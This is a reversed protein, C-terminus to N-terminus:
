RRGVARALAQCAGPLDDKQRLLSGGMLYIVDDGYSAQMAPVRDLSMGGGPCPFITKLGGFPQTCGTVISRCEAESFGFRGGFNPYIAGDIGMLRQLQGFYFLHSFGATPLIVNAGAFSPHSLIPLTFAPDAALSRVTDYGVLAPALMVGGAGAQQALMARARLQDAPATINAVFKTHGGTERSARAIAAVCAELRAAFPAHRQSTLGHDDKVLDMGGLAFRYAIDALEATALGMPKVASLLIPGKDVGCHQRLGTLGFKPGPCMTAVHLSPQLSEVRLGTKLSSNGFVVNLFQNFDDEFAEDDYSIEALYGGRQDTCATLTEIQGVITDAVHGAPVIDGPIEVTQELAIDSARLRATAEDPAAIWYTVISRSARGLNTM